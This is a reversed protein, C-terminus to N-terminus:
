GPSISITDKITAQQARAANAPALGALVVLLTLVRGVIPLPRFFRM